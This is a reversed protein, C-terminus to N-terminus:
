TMEMQRGPRDRRRTREQRVAKSVLLVVATLFLAFLAFDVADMEGGLAKSVQFIVQAACFV